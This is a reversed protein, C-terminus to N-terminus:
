RAVQLPQRGARHEAEGARARGVGAPAAVIGDGEGRRGLGTDRVPVRARPACRQGSRPATVATRPPGPPSRPPRRCSARGPSSPSRCRAVASAIWQVAHGPASASRGLLHLHRGVVPHTSEGGAVEVLIEALDLVAQVPEVVVLDLPPRTGAGVREAVQDEVEAAVERLPQKAPQAALGVVPLAVESNEASRVTLRASSARRSALRSASGHGRRWGRRSLARPAGPLHLVAGPRRGRRARGRRRACSSGRPLDHEDRLLERPSLLSM